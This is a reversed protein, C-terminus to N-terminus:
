VRLMMTQCSTVCSMSFHQHSRFLDKMIKHAGGQTMRKSAEHAACCGAFENQRSGEML